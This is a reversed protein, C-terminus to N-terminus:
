FNLCKESKDGGSGHGFAPTIAAAGLPQEHGLRLPTPHGKEICLEDNAEGPDKTHNVHGRMM